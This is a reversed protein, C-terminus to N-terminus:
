SKGGKHYNHYYKISDKKSEIIEINDTLYTLTNLIVNILVDYSPIKINVNKNNVVQNMTCNVIYEILDILNNDNNIENLPIYDNPNSPTSSRKKIQDAIFNLGQQNDHILKFKRIIKEVDKNESKICNNDSLCIM